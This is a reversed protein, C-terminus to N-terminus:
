KDVLVEVVMALGRGVKEAGLHGDALWLISPRKDCRHLPLQERQKPKMSCM